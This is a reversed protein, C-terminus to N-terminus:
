TIKEKKEYSPLNEGKDRRGKTIITTRRRTKNKSKEKQNIEGGAERGGMKSTSDYTKDWPM